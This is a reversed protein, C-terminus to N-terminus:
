TYRQVFSIEHFAYRSASTWEAHLEFQCDSSWTVWSFVGVASGQKFFTM